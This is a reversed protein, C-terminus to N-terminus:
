KLLLMQKAKSQGDVSLRYFYNGSAQREGRDNTGDWEVMHKGAPLATGRPLCDRVLAGTVDFIEIRVDRASGNLNFRIETMGGFPNPTNQRLMIGKVEFPSDEVGVNYYEIDWANRPIIKYIGYSYNVFGTVRVSDGPELERYIHEGYDNRRDNVDVRCSDTGGVILWVEGWAPDFGLVTDVVALETVTVLAGEWPEPLNDDPLSGDGEQADYILEAASVENIVIPGVAPGLNVFYQIGPDGTMETEGHPDLPFYEEIPAAVIVSDGAAVPGLRPSYVQLNNFQGGDGSQLYYYNGFVHTVRGTTTVVKDVFESADEIFDDVYQIDYINVIGEAFSYQAQEGSPIPEGEESLVNSVQITTIRGPLHATTELHVIRHDDTNREASLAFILDGAFAYNLPNQATTEDVDVAFFVDVHNNDHAWAGSVVPPCNMGLDEVCDRPAIKFNSYHYVLIGQVYDFVQGSDPITYLFDGQPDPNRRQVMISDAAGYPQERLWWTWSDTGQEWSPGAILATTASSDVVVPVSEYGEALPGDTNIDEMSLPVPDPETATGIIEFSGWTGPYGVAINIQSFFFYENYPGTVTVLDGRSVVGQHSPNNHTHVYLGSYLRPHGFPEWNPNPGLEQIFFGYLDTGTVVVNDVTVSDGEEFALEQIEFITTEVASASAFALALMLGIALFAISHKM